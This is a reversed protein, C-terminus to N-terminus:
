AEIVITRSALDYASRGFKFIYMLMCLPFLFGLAFNKIATRLFAQVFPVSDAPWVIIRWGMGGTNIPVPVAEFCSVVKLGM